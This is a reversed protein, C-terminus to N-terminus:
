SQAGNIIWGKCGARLRKNLQRKDTNAGCEFSGDPAITAWVIRYPMWAKLRKCEALQEPTLDATM